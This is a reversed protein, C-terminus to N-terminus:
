SHEGPEPPHCTECHEDHQLFYVNNGFIQALDENPQCESPKGHFHIKKKICAIKDVVASVSGIDHSVMLITLGQEDRLQKLLQYFSDQAVSDLGTSPEDLILLEPELALARAILVRQKQGGSLSGFHHNRQPYMDIKVLSSRILEKDRTSLGKWFKKKSHRSLAVVDWVSIPFKADYTSVQPLYGIRGSQQIERPNRGFVRVQGQYIEKFGMIVKLLTTKGSGNPGVISVIERAPIHLYIQELISHNNYGVWVDELAIIPTDNETPHGPKIAKIEPEM